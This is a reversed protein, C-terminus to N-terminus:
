FVIPEGRPRLSIASYFSNRAINKFSIERCWDNGGFPPDENREVHCTLDHNLTRRIISQLQFQNQTVGRYSILATV